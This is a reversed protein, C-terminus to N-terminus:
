LWFFDDVENTTDNIVQIWYDTNAALAIGAFNAQFEYIDFNSVDIGTDTRGM